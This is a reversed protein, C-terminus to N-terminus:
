CHPQAQKGPSLTIRFLSSCRQMQAIRRPRRSSDGLRNERVFRVNPSEQGPLYDYILVRAGVTVAEMFVTPSAKILAVDAAALMEPLNSVFGHIRFNEPLQQAELRSKLAANKGCVIHLDVNSTVTTLSRILRQIGMGDAGGVCVVTMRKFGLQARLAAKQEPLEFLRTALPLGTVKIKSAPVRERLAMQAIDKTPVFYADAGHAFWSAHGYVLDTVVTVVRPPNPMSRVAKYTTNTLCPHLIVVLDPNREEIIQRIGPRTRRELPYTVMNSWRRGNTAHFFAGWLGRSSSWRTYIRPMHPLPFAGAEELGDVIDIELQDDRELLADRLANSCARHGGGTDSM